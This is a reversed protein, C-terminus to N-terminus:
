SYSFRQIANHSQLAIVLRTCRTKLIYYLNPFEQRAQAQASITGDLLGARIVHGPGMDNGHPSVVVIDITPDQCEYGHTCPHDVYTGDRKMVDCWNDVDNSVKVVLDLIGEDVAKRVEHTVVMRLKQTSFPNSRPFRPKERFSIVTVFM